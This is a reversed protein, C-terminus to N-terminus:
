RPPTLVDGALPDPGFRNQGPTGATCFFVILVILGILPVLGILLWWGTRDIDHLRRVGVAINPLLLALGALSNIPFVQTDKFLAIDIGATVIMVIVYFLIWFWYESRAARTSFNVYNRFGSSIAEGFGM